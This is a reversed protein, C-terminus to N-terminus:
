PALLQMTPPTTGTPAIGMSKLGFSMVTRFVPAAVIGGFHGIVPKQLVVSVLLRPHDAPAFGVFSATYGGGRYCHCRPNAVQATGTKGAVRYGPIRAKPATGQASTVAELMDRLEQAVATDVVRRPAPSARPTVKGDASITAKVLTPPIRIGGNALTAYVSAMQVATVGVGQGFAITHQQSGSWKQPPPLIGRSEGPIGVGTTQGFGFARLYDYLRQKGLRQAIQITGINSSKALVGATTLREVPHTEADHFTKDGVHLFWPVTFPTDVAVKGDQLAGAVTIVKNVSGPEYTEAVAPNGGVAFAPRKAANADYSPATAVALLEGTTIDQVIVSGSAAKVAKVQAAIADQAAWQLDRDITLQISSGAVPAREAHEGAPIERGGAGFEATLKGDRGALLANAGLELGAGTGPGTPPFGLLTAAVEGDPYIRRSQAETGIGTLKNARLVDLASRAVSPEVNRALVVYRTGPKTLGSLLDSQSLNLVPSLAQAVQVAKGAPVETPDAFITRSDVSMALPAGNRDVIAGRTAPLAQAQRRQSEARQAYAAGDLGQLQVLRLSLVALMAVLVVVIVRLRRGTFAPLAGPPGAAPPPRHGRSPPGLLRHTLNADPGRGSPRPPRRGLVPRNRLGRDSM